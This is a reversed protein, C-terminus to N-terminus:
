AVKIAQLFTFGAGGIVAFDDVTGGAQYAQLQVYDTAALSLIAIIHNFVYDAAVNGGALDRAVATGNHLLIARMDKTGGNNDWALQGVVVYYGDEGAPVTLRSPNTVLDHMPGVDFVEVDFDLTTATEKTITQNASKYVSAEAAM